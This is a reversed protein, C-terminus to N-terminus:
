ARLRVTRWGASARHGFMSRLISNLRTNPFGSSWFGPTNPSFIKSLDERISLLRTGYLFWQVGCIALFFDCFSQWMEARSIGSKFRFTFGWTDAGPLFRLRRFSRFGSGATSIVSWPRRGGRRGHEGSFLFSCSVAKMWFCWIPALHSRKKKHNAVTEKELARDGRRGKRSGSTGAESLEMRIGSAGALYPQSSLSDRLLTPNSRVRPANDLPKHCLWFGSTRRAVSRSTKTKPCSVAESSPRASTKPGFWSRREQSFGTEM